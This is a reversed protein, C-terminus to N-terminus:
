GGTSLVVGDLCIATLLSGLLLVAHSCTPPCSAAAQSCPVWWESIGVEFRGSYVADEGLKSFGEIRWQAPPLLGAHLAPCWTLMEAHM